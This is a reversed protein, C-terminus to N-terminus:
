SESFKDCVEKLASKISSMYHGWYFSAEDDYTSFSWVVYPCLTTDGEIKHGIVVGDDKSLMTVSIIEYGANVLGILNIM